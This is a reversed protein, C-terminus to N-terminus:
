LNKAEKLEWQNAWICITRKSRVSRNPNQQSYRVKTEALMKRWLYIILKFQLRILKAIPWMEEEQTRIKLNTNVPRMKRHCSIQNVKCSLKHSLHPYIKLLWLLLSFEMFVLQCLQNFNIQPNLIRRLLRISKHPQM